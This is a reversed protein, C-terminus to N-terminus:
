IWLSIVRVNNNSFNSNHSIVDILSASVTKYFL